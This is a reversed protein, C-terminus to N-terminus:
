LFSNYFIEKPLKREEIPINKLISINKTNKMESSYGFDIYFVIKDAKKESVTTNPIIYNIRKPLIDETIFRNKEFISKNDRLYHSFAVDGHNKIADKIALIAYKINREAIKSSLNNFPTEISVFQLNLM